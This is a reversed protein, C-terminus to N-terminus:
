LGVLNPKDKHKSKMFTKVTELRHGSSSIFLGQQENIYGNTVWQEAGQNSLVLVATQRLM